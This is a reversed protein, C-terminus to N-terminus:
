FEKARKAAQRSGIIIPYGAFAWRLALGPGEQGTGGLLAVTLPHMGKKGIEGM